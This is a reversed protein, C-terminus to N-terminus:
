GFHNAARGIAEGVGSLTLAKFYFGFTRRCGAPAGPRKELHQSASVSLQSRSPARTAPRTSLAYLHAVPRRGRSRGSARRLCRRRGTRRRAATLWGALPSAASTRRERRLLAREGIGGRDRAALGEVLDVAAGAMAGVKAAAVDASGVQQARLQHEVILVALQDHGDDLVAPLIRAHRRHRRQRQAFFVDLGDGLVDVADRERHAALAARRGTFFDLEVDDDAVGLCALGVEGRLAGGAVRRDAVQFADALPDRARQLQLVGPDGTAAAAATAAGAPGHGTRDRNRDGHLVARLDFPRRTRMSSKKTMTASSFPDLAGDPAVAVRRLHVM